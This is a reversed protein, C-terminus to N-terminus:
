RGFLKALVAWVVLLLMVGSWILFIPAALLLLVAVVMNVILAKM